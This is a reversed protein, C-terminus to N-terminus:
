AEGPLTDNPIAQALNVNKYRKDASVEALVQVYPPLLFAEEESGLEVELIARDSWFPYIDIEICHGAYPIAYRTKEIPSRTPDAKQLLEEYERADIEYEEEMASLASLRSKETYIYRVDAGERVCRVRATIGPVTSLYAQLLHRIRVGDQAELTSLCPMRILFKREIELPANTM